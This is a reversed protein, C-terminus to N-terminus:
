DRGLTIPNSRMKKVTNRTVNIPITFSLIYSTFDKAIQREMDDISMGTDKMKQHDVDKGIYQSIASNCNDCWWTVSCCNASVRTNYSGCILCRPKGVSIPNITGLQLLLNSLDCLRVMRSLGCKCDFRIWWNDKKISLKKECYPCLISKDM